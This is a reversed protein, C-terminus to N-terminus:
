GKFLSLSFALKPFLMAFIQASVNKRNSCNLVSSTHHQRHRNEQHGTIGVPATNKTISIGRPEATLGTGDVDLLNSCATPTHIALHQVNGPRHSLLPSTEQCEDESKSDSGCLCCWSLISSQILFVSNCNAGVIIEHKFLLCVNSFKIVLLGSIDFKRHAQKVLTKKSVCDSVSSVKENKQHSVSKGQSNNSDNPQGQSTYGAGSQGQSTYGAGLQGQSTYSAGPQGQSTYSTGSQEQGSYSTGTHGQSSFSIGPQWQGSYSTGLQGQSSYSTGLQGLSSYSTGLQGQSTYGAGPQGQSTYSTGPQGQSTHSTGTQGQSSYSAGIQWQSNHNTSYQEPISSPRNEVHTYPDDFFTKPITNGCGRATSTDSCTSAGDPEGLYGLMNSRSVRISVKETTM